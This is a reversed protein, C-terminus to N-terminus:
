HLAEARKTIVEGCGQGVQGVVAEEALGLVNTQVEM